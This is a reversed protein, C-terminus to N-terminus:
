NQMKKDLYEELLESFEKARIAWTNKRAAALREEQKELNDNELADIIANSFEKTNSCYPVTNETQEVLDANFNTAVVPKGSGLYEFLKLPYITQNIEEQKFPIIAIDFGKLVCPMSKYPVSDVIHINNNPSNLKLRFEKEIPGVFVFSKDKHIEALEQILNYDTRGEINGFYGIIPKKIAAIAPYVVTETLRAKESHSFDAANPIFYTDPHQQKKLRYLEKSTCIILDSDNVILKESLIGHKTDYSSVLPDVCHYVKLNANLYNGVTPYHINFSNIFIYNEINQEEIIRKIRKVILKENYQLLKRYLFGEPLFNISMLLPTIVINLNPNDTELLGNSKKSFLEKKKLFQPSNKLKFYDRFTAPYEIYFVKNNEALHKSMTYGTSEIAADYKANSLIFVVTNKLM